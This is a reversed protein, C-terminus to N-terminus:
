PNSENAKARFKMFIDELSTENISYSAIAEDHAEKLQNVKEFLQSLMVPPNVAFKLMDEHEEKLSANLRKKIEAILSEYNEADDMVLTDKLKILINYGQGHNSKLELISGICRLTGDVMISLRNCLEECEEMSHSTLLITQDERQIDKICKWLFRRSKPDVGTTPEDLLVVSPGGLLALITNVKRKTGGSCEGVAHDKYALIDLVTLWYIIHKERDQINKISACYDITQYVTLFDLLMDIQPCYGYQERYELPNAQQVECHQLYIQGDSIPLNRSLMQFVTTKGAGNMGLLGFCEGRKVAFSIQKVAKHEDMYEKELKKVVIAYQDRVNTTNELLKDVTNSEEQVNKLFVSDTEDMNEAADQLKALSSTRSKRCSKKTKFMLCFVSCNKFKSINERRYIHEIVENLILVLIPVVVLPAVYLKVLSLPKNDDAEIKSSRSEYVILKENEYIVHMSHKLAFEPIIHLLLILTSNNQIDDYGSSLLVVGCVGIIMLYSMITIATNAHEVCKSIIYVVLLAQVGYLLLAAFIHMYASSSFVNGRDTILPLVVVLTTIATHLLIDFLYTSTWYVYRNINQLQRFGTQHELLPLQLYLLIYFMYAISVLETVYYPTAVDILLKRTSPINQVEVNASPHGFYYRMLITTAISQGIGTSHVLNNNHLITMDLGDKTHNCEIGVVVEDRYKTYDKRIENNLLEILSINEQVVLDVGEFTTNKLITRFLSQTNDGNQLSFSNIAIVGRANSIKTAILSVAALDMAGATHGTAICCIFMVIVPLLLLAGYIHKNCQMHIVKKRWIAWGINLSARSLVNSARKVTTSSTLPMRIPSDVRDESEPHHQFRKNSKSSNLFVEELSANTMSIAEIGRDKQNTELTNLLAPYQNLSEYPLTISFVEKVSERVTSKPVHQQVLKWIGDADFEPGKLLKLTYGKGYRQKLFLPTGFAVLEGYEMIAIWDGLIDAEEMFHTTLLITHDRRLKLLLDWIDRRSEPDLGSTPEDLILLKTNGIIANALSLRRKMGGSLTHVFAESKDMLNVKKMVDVAEKRADELSLGRLCGFFEVHERCNLFSYFVNHQPCFGIQQRYRDPAQEGDVIISGSTRPVMGTIINMTTTKGAGNHGLLVTISNSYISLSFDKVAVKERGTNWRRKYVKNLKTIRVLPKVQKGVAQQEVGDPIPTDLCMSDVPVMEQDVSQDVTRRSEAMVRNGMLTGRARLWYNKSLCFGKSKPTGYRGPFVNTVYFWLFLWFIIGCLQMLYVSFLSYSEFTPYASNFLDHAEFVHGSSKYSVFILGGTLWGNVPFICLPLTLSKFIYSVLVSSFLCVPAVAAAITSSELTTSLFFIFVILHILYLLGLLILWVVQAPNTEWVDIFLCYVVSILFVIFFHILSISFLTVENWYSASCVIKLYEKAGNAREELLPLLLLYVSQFTGCALTWVVTYFASNSDKINPSEVVPIHGYHLSAHPMKLDDGHSAKELYFTYARDIANQLALFGSQIYENNRIKYANFVDRSYTQETQFNNNKMRITYRLLDDHSINSFIIGFCIHENDLVKYELLQETAVPEVREEVIYLIQRVDEMITKTLSTNPTYYFKNILESPLFNALEEEGYVSEDRGITQKKQTSNLIFILVILPIFTIVINRFKHRKKETRCKKIFHQATRMERPKVVIKNQVSSQSGRTRAGVSGTLVGVTGALVISMGDLVGIMGAGADVSGSLAGATRAGVTGVLVDVTAALVDVTAALAGAPAELWETRRPRISYSNPLIGKVSSFIDELSTENISYSVITEDHAEKLQNVKEFLQSLMVPPNVAFKLMDKHKEKLSANLRRKIETILSEYNEADDLKDKLKILINYGQGHNSKLELISGICRLTGDVMISLRNCLEECEEMSHSTLLITQDEQQINKICKWLFRRSKPDVGTTPEDLLVVPPGGLLALITNVKRKTGGSCQGIAHDKYALIDLVALWYIIHKKRHQINKISACYDITQYVTLFDLLMDIQPCYGYQKRYELPNTQQVECHQLYIQGDSIPLNRSLMQFVTTKGAGNMGLLGFCEGRKVAFSIQKVAKHEDMYKKELKKVVIAYQDRVNTTNELLKDVTKSEEQVNKLFVSDTEDNAAADHLEMERSTRSRRCSLIPVVVLPAVYMKVLSLPKNDDAEIKFSHSKYINLKENEYIVRMSHKLAFEPVVHLLLILTSNNIIDDYGSSLLVVGCVGIIMLFSMITIATNAHEVCKSIIYVIQLAQVGYLLLAAFIHMYASSSFANGRDTILLMVVVLTTIATHLLIDFLHTSTWYVYRNINQLQRFGTQHELLPLQLYLLIYFMYAISVFETVYYPTAFDILLKRTSPINQVEVNASPHGFYYRMLITTAISQGIGTSHVLNNNHLITMDLGDKTHNCDIGVVVEDRYKTYDKRIENNLLEILSINEQVVLDVGEFTTNKLITRFLSQTDGNQPSFSNIAIVGRANWIKTGILRVAALDMAGATHGTAICCIFMVIVPLLLLAGYIHKNCQMHIVKKRWIAWGINLSARSLVNSARKVTTSSTLPMRIPSDVRDESEPHHQFRKNSKSSNLFVEELSANTMSIAEIGRDKQNTELTNLLAPYQNLSEYPLTISFVEKVSERVTSKPVHQQVLKWIGDADFEPGKLLKLTYGKGYRQKLYLPTGFAILEGYEMIAIWDGLIDAEEMFHTTLLITHDKRLNLLLDWVDRRSEPDLGSTPEDLILLKTNGIIANALTLRRKMGGSLTHVFAESKDMLNVKKMVDVAEKRADELSLGRLCGFFEVHERCNLFSYFVNHQPCFGIQQRYRDPDQEGDVIISGSTRPMIATIINITTTKGAGNHGILVTISNSYISLSFDKVAVKERGTKWRGKYVKNLKTIRVLPEVQKGVAQQVVGDPIPAELCISNVSVM